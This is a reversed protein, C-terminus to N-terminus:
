CAAASASRGPRGQVGADRRAHRRRRRRGRRGRRAHREQDRGRRRPGRGRLARRGRRAHITVGHDTLAKQFFGGATKGFTRELTVDEQMILTCQRGLATLTAAVETAIYSGGVLRWASISPPTTASTTPTASRACTTSATSTAATWGCGASTRAPRWCCSATSSSTRTPSRSPTRRRSRAEDREHADAARRQERHVLGRRRATVDTRSKEGGLFGKSVATRDYPPDPDRSVIVVSGEAGEERLTQAAAFGADGGGIILFDVERM